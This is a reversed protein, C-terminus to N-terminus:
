FMPRQRQRRRTTKKKQYVGYRPITKVVKGGGGARESRAGTPKKNGVSKGTPTTTVVTYGRQEMKEPQGKRVKKVKTKYGAKSYRSKIEEKSPM